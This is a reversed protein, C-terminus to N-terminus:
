CLLVVSLILKSFKGLEQSTEILSEFGTKRIEPFCKAAIEIIDATFTNSNAAECDYFILLPQQKVNIAIKSEKKVCESAAM